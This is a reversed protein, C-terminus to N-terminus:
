RGKDVNSNLNEPRSYIGTSSRVGYTMYTIRVSHGSFNFRSAFYRRVTVISGPFSKGVVEKKRMWVGGGHM